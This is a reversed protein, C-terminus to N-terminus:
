RTQMDRQRSVLGGLDFIVSTLLRGGQHRPQEVTLAPTEFSRWCPMGPANATRRPKKRCEQNQKQSTGKPMDPTKEGKKEIIGWGHESLATQAFTRLNRNKAPIVLVTEEVGAVEVAVTSRRWRQSPTPRVRPTRAPSLAAASDGIAPEEHAHTGNTEKHSLKSLSLLALTCNHKSRSSNSSQSRSTM